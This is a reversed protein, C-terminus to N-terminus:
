AFEGVVVVCRSVVIHVLKIREDGPLLVLLNM